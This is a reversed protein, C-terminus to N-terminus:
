SCVTCNSAKSENGSEEASSHVMGQQMTVRHKVRRGSVTVLSVEMSNMSWDKYSMSLILFLIQPLIHFRSYSIPLYVLLSNSSM